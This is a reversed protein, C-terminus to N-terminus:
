KPVRIPPYPLEQLTKTLNLPIPRARELLKTFNYNGMSSIDKVFTIWMDETSDFVPADPLQSMALLNKILNSNLHQHILWLEPFLPPFAFDKFINPDFGPFFENFIVCSVLNAIAVEVLPDFYDERISVLAVRAVLKFLAVTPQNHNFIIDDLDDLPVVIPYECEISDNALQVDFVVRYPRNMTYSMFQTVHAVIDDLHTLVPDIDDIRKLDNTPLTFILTKSYLESWPVGFDKSQEWIEPKGIVARPHRAFGHFSLKARHETESDLDQVAIYVIGGFPTAIRTIEGSIEFTAFVVPWRKWPGQRTLLSETHSGVQIHLNSMTGTHSIIEGILGNPLWLGTSIWSEEHLRVELEHNSISSPKCLGPFQKAEPSSTILEVPLKSIIDQILVVMICHTVQPCIGNASHYGTKKLFSFAQEYISHLLINQEEGCVLVHYRLATVLDDLQAADIEDQQSIAKFEEAMPLLHVYYIMQFVSPVSVIMRSPPHRNLTCYTYALGYQLLFKNVPVEIEVFNMPPAYLCILGGGDKVFNTLKEYDERNSLDLDSSIIVIQHRSFDSDFSGLQVFIGQTEFCYSVSEKFIESVGILLIPSTIQSRKSLWFLINYFLRSNDEAFFISDSLFNIHAFCLVRGKDSSSAAAIALKIETPQEEDLCLDSLIIPFSDKTLCVLPVMGPPCKISLVESTIQSYFEKHQESYDLASTKQGSTQAKPSRSDKKSGTISTVKPPQSIICGM